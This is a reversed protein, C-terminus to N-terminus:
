GQGRVRYEQLRVDRPGTSSERPQFRHARISAEHGETCVHVRATRGIAPLDIGQILDMREYGMYVRAEVLNTDM